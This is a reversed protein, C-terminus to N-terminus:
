EPTKTKQGFIFPIKDTLKRVDFPPEHNEINLDQYIGMVYEKDADKLDLKFFSNLYKNFKVAISM